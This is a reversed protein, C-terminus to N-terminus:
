PVVANTQAGHARNCSPSCIYLGRRVSVSSKRRIERKQESLQEMSIKTSSQMRSKGTLAHLSTQTVRGGFASQALLLVLVFSAAVVPRLGNSIKM